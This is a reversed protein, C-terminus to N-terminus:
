LTNALLASRLAEKFLFTSNLISWIKVEFELLICLILHTNCRISILEERSIQGEFGM